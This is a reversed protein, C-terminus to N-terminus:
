DQQIIQFSDVVRSTADLTVLNVGVDGISCKVTFNDTNQKTTQYSAKFDSL